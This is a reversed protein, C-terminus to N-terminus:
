LPLGENDFAASDKNLIHCDLPFAVVLYLHYHIKAAATPSFEAEPAGGHEIGDFLGKGNGIDLVGEIAVHHDHNGTGEKFPLDTLVKLAAGIDIECGHQLGIAGHQIGLHVPGQGGIEIGAPIDRFQLHDAEQCSVFGKLSLEKYFGVEADDAGPQRPLIDKGALAVMLM